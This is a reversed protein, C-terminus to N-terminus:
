RSHTHTHSGCHKEPCARRSEGGGRRACSAYRTRPTIPTLRYRGSSLQMALPSAQTELLHGLGERGAGRGGIIGFGSRGKPRQAVGRWAVLPVPKLRRPGRSGRTGGAHREAGRPADLLVHLAARCVHRASAGRSQVLGRRSKAGQQAVRAEAKRSPRLREIGVASPTPLPHPTTVVQRSICHPGVFPNITCRHKTLHPRPRVATRFPPRSKPRQLLPGAFCTCNTKICVRDKSAAPSPPLDTTGQM